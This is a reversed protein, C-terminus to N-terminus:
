KRRGEVIKALAIANDETATRGLVSVGFGGKADEVTVIWGGTFDAAKVLVAKTGIGSLDKGGAGEWAQLTISAHRADALTVIVRGNDGNTWTCRGLVGPIPKGPTGAGVKWSITKGIDDPSLVACADDARTAAVGPHPSGGVVLAVSLLSAVVHRM